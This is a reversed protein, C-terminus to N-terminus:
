AAHHVLTPRRPMARLYAGAPTKVLVGADVLMELVAEVTVDDTEFRMQAQSLTLKLSPKDLFADQVRMVLTEIRDSKSMSM